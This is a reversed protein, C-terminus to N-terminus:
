PLPIGEGCVELETLPAGAIIVEMFEGCQLYRECIHEEAGTSTLVATQAFPGEASCSERIRLEFAADATAFFNIAAYGSVRRAPITRTGSLLPSKTSFLVDNKQRTAVAFGPSSQDEKM